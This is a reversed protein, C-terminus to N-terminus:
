YARAKRMMSTGVGMKILSCVLSVGLYCCVVIFPLIRPVMPFAFYIKDGIWTLILSFIIPYLAM